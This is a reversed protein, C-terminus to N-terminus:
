LLSPSSLGKPPTDFNTKTANKKLFFLGTERTEIPQASASSSLSSSAPLPSSSSPSLLSFKQISFIEGEKAGEGIEIGMAGCFGEINEQRALVRLKDSLLRREERGEGGKLYGVLMQESWGVKKGEELVQDRIGGRRKGKGEVEGREKERVREGWIVFSSHLSSVSGIM